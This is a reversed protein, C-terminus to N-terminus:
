GGATVPQRLIRLIADARRVPLSIHGEGAVLGVRARPLLAAITRAHAPPVVTDATGHWLRVPMRVDTPAFPWPETYRRLEEIAPRAGQRAGGRMTDLLVQRVDDRELLVSDVESGAELTFHLMAGSAHRVILALAHFLAAQTRPHRHALKFSLRALSSMGRTAAPDTLPGLAGLLTIAEVRDALLAGCALAYPGGGSIGLVRCREIGLTDLLHAVDAPWDSIRRGWSPSSLGYGPRDPVILRIGRRAAAAAILHAELRCAPFGHCYVVPTGAPDGHEDWALRRGDPLTTSSPQEALARMRAHQRVM